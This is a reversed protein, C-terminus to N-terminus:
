NGRQSKGVIKRELSFLVSMFFIFLYASCIKARLRHGADYDEWQSGNVDQCCQNAFLEGQVKDSSISGCM